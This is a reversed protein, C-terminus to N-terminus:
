GKRRVAKVVFLLAAVGAAGIGAIGAVGQEHFRSAPWPSVHTLVCVKRLKVSSHPPAERKGLTPNMFTEDLCGRGEGRAGKLGLEARELQPARRPQNQLDHRGGCGQLAGLPLAGLPTPRESCDRAADDGHQTRGM